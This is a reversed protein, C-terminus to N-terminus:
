NTKRKSCTGFGPIVCNVNGNDDKM